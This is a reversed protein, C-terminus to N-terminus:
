TGVLLRGWGQAARVDPAGGPAAPLSSVGASSLRPLQHVGGAGLSAAPAQRRPSVSGAGGRPDADRRDIGAGRAWAGAPWWGVRRARTRAAGPRTTAWREEYKRPSATSPQTSSLCSSPSKQCSPNARWSTTCPSCSQLQCSQGNCWEGSVVRLSAAFVGWMSPLCRGGFSMWLLPRLCGNTKNLLGSPPPLPSPVSFVGICVFDRWKRAPDGAAASLQSRRPLIRWTDIQRNMQDTM